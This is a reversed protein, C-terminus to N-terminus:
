QSLSRLQKVKGFYYTTDSVVYAEFDDIGKQLFPSLQKHTMVDSGETLLNCSPMVILRKRGWKGALFCKYQEVRAGNRISIAPHDHGIIIIKAHQFDSDKPIIDGHTVYASGILHFDVLSINKKKAIYKLLLDHNGEVLIIRDCSPALFNLFGLVHKWESFSISGFDHKIDGNLIISHFKRGQLMRGVRQVLAKYLVRPIFVGRKNQFEEYGLHIDSLVLNGGVILGIDHITIGEAIDM